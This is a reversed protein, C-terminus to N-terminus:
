KTRQLFDYALLASSLHWVIHPWTLGKNRALYADTANILGAIGVPVLLWPNDTLTEHERLVKSLVLLVGIKDVYLLWQKPISHSLISATGAFLLEPSRCHIGAALFGINSIACWFEAIYPTVKYWDERQSKPDTLKNFFGTNKEDASSTWYGDKNRDFLQACTKATILFSTSLLLSFFLAIFIRNYTRM